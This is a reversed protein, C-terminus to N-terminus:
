QTQRPREVNNVAARMLGDHYLRFEHGRIEYEGHTRRSFTKNIKSMAKLEGASREMRKAHLNSLSIARAHRFTFAQKDNLQM